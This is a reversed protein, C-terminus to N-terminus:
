RCLQTYTQEWICINEQTALTYPNILIGSIEGIKLSIHTSTRLNILDCTQRLMIQMLIQHIKHQKCWNKVLDTIDPGFIIFQNFLSYWITFIDRYFMSSFMDIVVIYVNKKDYGIQYFMHADIFVSFHNIAIVWFVHFYSQKKKM